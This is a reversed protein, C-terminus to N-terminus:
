LVAARFGQRGPRMGAEQAASSANMAAILQRNYESVAKRLVGYKDMIGRVAAEHGTSIEQMRERTSRIQAM